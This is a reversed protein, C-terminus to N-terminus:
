KFKIKKRYSKPININLLKKLEIFIKSRMRMELLRWTYPLFKLYQNKKDRTFLRSFIGLIKLSRQVSLISFDQHFNKLNVKSKKIYYNYIKKKLRKSTKIRVDDILSVLDYAYNGLLADQNDIIGIKKGIKMLNQSHYDRQVFCKNDLNLKNYLKLLIINAKKKIDRSKKKSYFLPLYWDFFLNSEELLKQKTYKDLMYFGKNINKIRKKTKINQIKLLFNVLKKYIYFKNKKKLLLKHFSMDGFDEIIM